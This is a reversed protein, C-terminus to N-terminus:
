LGGNGFGNSSKIANNPTDFLDGPAPGTEIGDFSGNPAEDKAREKANHIAVEASFYDDPREEKAWAQKMLWDCAGLTDAFREGRNKTFTWRDLLIPQANYKLLADITEPDYIDAVDVDHVGRERLFWERALGEFVDKNLRCDELADHIARRDRLEKLRDPFLHFFVADLSLGGVEDRGFLKTALRFTCLPKPQFLKAEEPDKGTARAILRNLATTDYEISHGVVVNKTMALCGPRAETFWDNPEPYGTAVDITIGHVVVACSWIKGPPKVNLSTEVLKAGTADVPFWSTQIAEAFGREPNGDTETDLFFVLPRETETETENM